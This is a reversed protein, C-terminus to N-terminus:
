LHGKVHGSRQQKAGAKALRNELGEIGQAPDGAIRLRLVQAEKFADDNKIYVELMEVTAHTKILEYAETTWANSTLSDSTSLSIGGLDYHYFISCSYTRDPPHDLRLARTQMCYFVPEASFSTARRFDNIWRPTRKQLPKRYNSALLTLYDVEILDVSFSHYETTFQVTTRKTNFGYRNAKYFDIANVIAEQIRADFSTGRDLDGRIAAIMGGLTAM